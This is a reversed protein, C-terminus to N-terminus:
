FNLLRRLERAYWNMIKSMRKKRLRATRNSGPLRHHNQRYLEVARVIGFILKEILADIAKKVAQGLVNIAATCKALETEAASFSIVPQTENM